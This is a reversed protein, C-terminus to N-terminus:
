LNTRGCLAWAALEWGGFVSVECRAEVRWKTPLGIPVPVPGMGTVHCNGTSLDGHASYAAAGGSVAVLGPTPLSACDVIATRATGSAFADYNAWQLDTLGYFGSYGM